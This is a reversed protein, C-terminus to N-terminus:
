NNMVSEARKAVVGQVWEFVWVAVSRVSSNESQLAALLRSDDLAEDPVLPSVFRILWSLQSRTSDPEKLMGNVAEITPDFSMTSLVWAQSITPLKPFGSLITMIAKDQLPHREGSTLPQKEEGSPPTILPEEITVSVDDGVVWTLLTFSILKQVDTVETADEIAQKLWVDNLRVGDVRFNDSNNESGFRGAEFVIKTEGTRTLTERATFNVIGSLSVMAGQLPHNNLSGGVWYKRLDIQVSITGGPKISLERDISVVIPKAATNSFGSINLKAEILVLPQIPGNSAISLPITTNNTLEVNVLIPQYPGFTNRNPTIRIEIPPRPDNHIAHLEQLVGSMLQRLSDVEPRITFSTGVVEQLKNRSWVGLLTGGGSKAVSLLELAADKKNEEELYLLAMGIKAAPDNTLPELKSKATVLDGRRLAIWGDLRQKESPHITAGTEVQKIFKEAGDADEGIWLLVWAAQLYMEVTLLLGKDGQSEYMKSLTVLSNIAGGLASKNQSNETQNEYVAACVVALKPPLPAHIRALDLPNLRPQQAQTKRQFVRDIANQRALLTEMAASEDGSAWQSLVIDALLNSSINWQEEPSSGLILEYLEKADKYDGFAMLFEALAVQTSVDRINSLASSALLEARRYVDATEDGFFGTALNIADPYSPDLAVSEALWRAFQNIDGVQQQLYAADLALRSAAEADLNNGRNESLIQEYLSMRRDVTQAENIINRLRALQATPEVPSVRLLNEIAHTSISPRDAMQAVQHLVRWVSPDEPTLLTAETALVVAANIAKTDIPRSTTATRAVRIYEEALMASPSKNNTTYDADQIATAPNSFIAVLLCILFISHSMTHNKINRLPV